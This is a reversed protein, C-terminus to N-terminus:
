GAALRIGVYILFILPTALPGIAIGALGLAPGGALGFLAQLPDVESM